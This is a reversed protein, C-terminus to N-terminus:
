YYYHWNGPQQPNVFVFCPCRAHTSFIFIVYNSIKMNGSLTPPPPFSVNPIICSISSKTPLTLIPILLLPPCLHLLRIKVLPLYCITKFTAGLWLPHSGYTILKSGKHTHFLGALCWERIDSFLPMWDTSQPVQLGSSKCLLYHPHPINDKNKRSGALTVWSKEM